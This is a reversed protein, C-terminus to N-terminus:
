SAPLTSKQQFEQVVERRIQDARKKPIHLGEIKFSARQSKMAKQSITEINEKNKMGEIYCIELVIDTKSL